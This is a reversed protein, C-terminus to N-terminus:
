DTRKYEQISTRLATALETEHAKMVEVIGGIGIVLVPKNKPQPIPAAIIGGGKTQMGYSVAYGRDRVNELENLLARLSAKHEEDQCEANYRTVIRTVEQTSLTSLIAHGAGSYALPRVTGLSLHLRAPNTAQIVHIYQAYMGNRTALVITNGTEDNLQRMMRIIGGESSLRANVWNGLLTVRISTIYTRKEPNYQIYGLAVLSRLLASTSSQPYGLADAVEMVSAERKIDDFLELIQMVRAASKVTSSSDIPQSIEKAPKLPTKKRPM